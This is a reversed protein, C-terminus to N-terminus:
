SEAREVLGDEAQIQGACLHGKCVEQGFPAVICAQCGGPLPGCFGKVEFRQRVVAPLLPLLPQIRGQRRQRRKGRGGLAVGGVQDGVAM